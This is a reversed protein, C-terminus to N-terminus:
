ALWCGSARGPLNVQKLTVSVPQPMSRLVRSRMKSGNKVVLAVPLPVPSPRAVDIADDLLVLSSQLGVLSIPTPVVKLIKKARRGFGNRRGGFVVMVWLVTWPPLSVIRRTSSSDVRRSSTRSTRSSNHNGRGPLGSRADLGERVLERLTSEDEVLLITEKGGQVTQPHHDNRRVVCRTQRPPSSSKSLRAVGIESTVEIWGKHQKVIGYVTALGLGTGKGTAKTTFFPEFIRDLNQRDM